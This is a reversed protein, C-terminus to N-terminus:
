SGETWLERIGNGPVYVGMKCLFISIKWWTEQDGVCVDEGADASAPLTTESRKWGRPDENGCGSKPTGEEGQSALHREDM